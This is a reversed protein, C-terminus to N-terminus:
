SGKALQGLGTTSGHREYREIGRGTYPASARASIGGIHYLFITQVALLFVGVQPCERVLTDLSQAQLRSKRSNSLTHKKWAHAHLPAIPAAGAVGAVGEQGQQREEAGDKSRTSEHGASQGASQGPKWLPNAASMQAAGVLISVGELLLRKRQGCEGRTIRGAKLEYGLQMLEKLLKQRFYQHRAIDGEDVSAGGEVSKGKGDSLSRNRSESQPAKKRVGTSDQHVAEMLEPALVKSCKRVARILMFLLSGALKFGNLATGFFVLFTLFSEGGPDVLFTQHLDCLTLHVLAFLSLL